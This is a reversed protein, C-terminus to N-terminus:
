RKAHRLNRLTNAYTTYSQATLEAVKWYDLAKILDDYDANLLWRKAYADYVFVPSTAATSLQMMHTRLIVAETSRLGWQQHGRGWPVPVRIIGDADVNECVGLDADIDYCFQILTQVAENCLEAKAKALGSRSLSHATDALRQRGVSRVKASVIGNKRAPFAVMERHLNNM